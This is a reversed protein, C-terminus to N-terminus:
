ELEVEVAAALEALDADAFDEVERQSIATGGPRDQQLLMPLVEPAVRTRSMRECHACRWVMRWPGAELRAERLPVMTVSRCFRCTSQLLTRNPDLEPLTSRAETRQLSRSYRRYSRAARVCRKWLLRVSVTLLIALEVSIGSSRMFWLRGSLSPGRPVM